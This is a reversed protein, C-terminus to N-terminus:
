RGAFFGGLGYSSMISVYSCSVVARQRRSDDQWYASELRTSVVEFRRQLVCMNDGRVLSM